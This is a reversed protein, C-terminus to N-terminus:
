KAEQQGVLRLFVDELRAQSSQYRSIILGSDLALRLLEQRAISTDNPIVRLIAGERQVQGGAWPQCALKEVLQTLLVELSPHPEFEVEFVPTAYRELLEHCDAEVLLQGNEIIGVRDCVREVDALIHTSMFVTAKGRLSDIIDLVQRRGFPDLSSCPEDLLLVQPQNLFAQAIGLRQKMGGSYGSIRRGADAKLQVLELVEEVRNRADKGRFGFLGAVFALYERANMWGYFAPEEGLYGIAGQVARLERQVSHGLVQAQGSTPRALGCLIRMTTTKGAGNRGLYGFISGQPVELNLGKLAVVDGYRKTLAHCSIAYM